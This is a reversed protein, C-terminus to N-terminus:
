IRCGLHFADHITLALMGPERCCGTKYISTKLYENVCTDNRALGAAIVVTDAPVKRLAGQAEVIVNSGDIAVAKAGTLIKMKKCVRKIVGWRFSPGADVAVSDLMELVTVKRGNDALFEATEIGIMGAGIVVVNEGAVHKGDLIDLATATNSANVGAIGPVLPLAGTAIVIVDPKSARLIQASLATNLRAKVPLIEMQTCYYEVVNRMEQKYPPVSALNVLGGLKGTKEVLEVEHGRLACVRAAEMGAPGGGIVLVKKRAKAPKVLGEGERGCEPNLACKIQNDEPLAAPDYKQLQDFCYCCGICKRIERIRGEQTKKVFDPDCLLARGIGILDADGRRLIEAATFPENIRGVTSVPVAVVNKIARALHAFAGRPVFQPLM